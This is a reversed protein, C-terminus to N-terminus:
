DMLIEGIRVKRIENKINIVVVICEDEKLINIWQHMVDYSTDTFLDVNRITKLIEWASMVIYTTTDPYKADMMFSELRRDNDNLNLRIRESILKHNIIETYWM